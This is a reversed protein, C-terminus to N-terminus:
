KKRAQFNLKLNVGGAGFKIQQAGMGDLPYKVFPEIVLRNSKGLPYGIGFSVNLTRAFYFSGLGQNITETEPQRNSAGTIGNYGYKYTYNESLFTGSSLGASIYTDSKEPNFEYKLNIPIDLGLLSANYNQLTPTVVVGSFLKEDQSSLAAMNETKEAVAAAAMPLNDNTGGYKFSNQAIAVGTSLKLNKTLRFDSTFGAGVNVQNDSGKAYNVYTAAYLGFHVPKASEGTNIEPKKGNAAYSDKELMGMIDNKPQKAPQNLPEAPQNQVPKKSDPVAVYAPKGSNDSPTTNIDGEPSKQQPLPAPVDTIHPVIIETKTIGAANGKRQALVPADPTLTRATYSSEPQNDVAQEDAKGPVAPATNQPKAQQQKVGTNQATQQPKVPPTYNLWLGVATFLLIVAAAAAWWLRAVGRHKKQAPFKERLLMWGEDAGADDYNDFVRAIHNKFENDLENSM